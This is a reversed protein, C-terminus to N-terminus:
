AVLTVKAGRHVYDPNEEMDNENGEHTANNLECRNGEAKSRRMLNYSVCNHEMFCLGDCFDTMLPDHVQIIHNVLRKGHFVQEPRFDLHRCDDSFSHKSGIDKNHTLVTASLFKLLIVFGVVHFCFMFYLAAGVVTNICSVSKCFTSLFCVCFEGYSWLTRSLVM